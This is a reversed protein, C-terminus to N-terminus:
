QVPLTFIQLRDAGATISANGVQTTITIGTITAQPADADAPLNTVTANGAFCEGRICRLYNSLRPNVWFQLIGSVAENASGLVSTNAVVQTANLRLGFSATNAAGSSKRVSCVVMFPTTELISETSATILNVTTTSTTTSEVLTEGVLTLSNQRLVLRQWNGRETKIYVRRSDRIRSDYFVQIEGTDGDANRPTFGVGLPRRAFELDIARLVQEIDRFNNISRYINTAM